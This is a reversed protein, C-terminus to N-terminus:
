LAQEQIAGETRMWVLEDRIDNLLFSFSMKTKNWGELSGM